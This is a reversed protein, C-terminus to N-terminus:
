FKCMVLQQLKNVAGLKKGGHSTVRKFFYYEHSQQVEGWPGEAATLIIHIICINVSCKVYHMCNM